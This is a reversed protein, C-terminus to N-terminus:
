ISINGALGAEFLMYYYLNTKFTTVKLDDFIKCKGSRKV